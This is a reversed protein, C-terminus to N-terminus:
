EHYLRHKTIYSGVAHPILGACDEGAALRRRLETASVEEHVTEILHVRARQEPSLHLQDLSHLPAGPRSVVIWEALQLLRDPERWQRLSLFSDGGAISFLKAGSSERRLKELTEVTYNPAGDPNPGDIESAEFRADAECALWVM